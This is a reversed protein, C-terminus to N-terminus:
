GSRLKGASGSRGTGTDASQQILVQAVTLIIASMLLAAEKQLGSKHKM